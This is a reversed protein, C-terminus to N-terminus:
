GQQGGEGCVERGGVSDDTDVASGGRLPGGGFEGQTAGYEGLGTHAVTGGLAQSMAQFGYCMGFVPVGAELLTRDLEPAGEWTTARGLHEEAKRNWLKSRERRESDPRGPPTLLEVIARDLYLRGLYYHIAGDSPASAEARRLADESRLPDGVFYQGM